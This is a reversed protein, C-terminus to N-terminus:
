KFLIYHSVYIFYLAIQISDVTKSYWYQGNTLTWNTMCGKDLCGQPHKLSPTSKLFTQCNLSTIKKNKLKITNLNIYYPCSGATSLLVVEKHSWKQHHQHTRARQWECNITLWGPVMLHYSMSQCMSCINCSHMIWLLAKSALISLLQDQDHSYYVVMHWHAISHAMIMEWRCRHM